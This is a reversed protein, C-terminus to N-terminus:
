FHKLHNFQDIVSPTIDLTFINFYVAANIPM